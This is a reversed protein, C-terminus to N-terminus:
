KLNILNSCKIKRSKKMPYETERQTMSKLISRTVTQLPEHVPSKTIQISQQSTRSVQVSILSRTHLFLQPQYQHFHFSSYQAM